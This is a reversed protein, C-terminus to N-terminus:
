KKKEGGPAALRGGHRAHTRSRRSHGVRSDDTSRGHGRKGPGSSSIPSESGVDDCPSDLCGLNRRSSLRKRCRYCWVSALLWVWPRASVGGSPGDWPSGAARRAGARRAVVRGRWWGRRSRRGSGADHGGRRCPWSPSPTGSWPAAATTTPTPNLALRTSRALVAADPQAHTYVRVHACLVVCTCACVCM